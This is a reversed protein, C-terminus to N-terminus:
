SSASPIPFEWRIKGCDWIRSLGRSNAWQLETMGEPCGSNKKSQSQKGIRCKPNKMDVYYYDPPLEGARIFGMKDYVGGDSYRNDSWSVIKDIGNASCWDVCAKFLKGAGGIVNVGPKFCLRTLVVLGSEKKRHHNGLDVAGVMDEGHFLGFCVRSLKNAGQLHNVGCFSKMEEKSIEKVDCKRGQLRRDFIGLKSLILSKCVENRDRWEDDFITVLQIGKDKCRRWKDHHYSRLKPSFSDEAHWFIGCFEIAFKQEPDYIDLERNELVTFDNNFKFGLSNLWDRIENQQKNNPRNEPLCLPSKVGYKEMCTDQYKQKFSPHKSFCDVGYKDVLTEIMKKRISENQHPHEAGYREICTSKRADWYEETQTYNDKGYRERCTKEKKAKVENSQMPFECGYKELSASKLKDVHMSTKAFNFEGYKEFCTQRQKQKIEENKLPSEVGYKKMLSKSRKSKFDDSSLYSESGYREFNTKKTKELFAKSTFMHKSGFLKISGEEKKKIKCERSGCSDKDIIRNLREISKKVRTFLVGCYDCQLHVDTRITCDRYMKGINKLNLDDRIM